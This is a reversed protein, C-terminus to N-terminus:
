AGGPRERYYILVEPRLLVLISWIGFLAGFPFCCPSLMPLVAAVAGLRALTRNGLTLLSWGGLVTLACTLISLAAPIPRLGLSLVRELFEDRSAKEAATDDAAPAIIGRGIEWIREPDDRMAFATAILAFGSLGVILLGIAPTKVVHRVYAELEELTVDRPRKGDPFPSDDPAESSM